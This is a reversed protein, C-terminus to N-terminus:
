SRAPDFISRGESNDMERVERYAAPDGARLRKFIANDHLQTIPPGPPCPPWDLEMQLARLPALHAQIRDRDAAYSDDRLYEDAEDLFDFLSDTLSM